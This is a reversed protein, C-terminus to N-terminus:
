HAPGVTPGTSSVKKWGTQPIEFGLKQRLIRVQRDLWEPGGPEQVIAELLDPRRKEFEAKVSDTTLTRLGAKEALSRWRTWDTDAQELLPRNNRVYDRVVDPTVGNKNLQGILYGVAIPYGWAGIITHEIHELM